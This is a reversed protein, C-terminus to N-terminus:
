LKNTDIFPTRQMGEPAPKLPADPAGENDGEPTAVTDPEDDEPTDPSDLPNRSPDLNSPAM